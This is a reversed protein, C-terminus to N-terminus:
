REVVFLGTPTFHADPRSSFYEQGNKWIWLTRTSVNRKKWGTAFINGKLVKIDSLEADITPDPNINWNLSSTNKWVTPQNDLTGGILINKSDTTIAQGYNVPAPKSPLISQKGNKLYQVTQGDAVFGTGVVYIDNGLISIQNPIINEYNKNELVFPAGNKWYMGQTGIEESIEYGALYIDKDLVCLDYLRANNKGDTV